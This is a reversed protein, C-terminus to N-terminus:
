VFVGDAESNEARRSLLGPLWSQGGEVLGERCQGQSGV